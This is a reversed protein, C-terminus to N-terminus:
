FSRFRNPEGKGFENRRRASSTISYAPEIDAITPFGSPMHESQAKGTKPGLASMSRLRMEWYM